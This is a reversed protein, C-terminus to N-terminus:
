LNRTIIVKVYFKSSGERVQTLKEVRGYSLSFSSSCTVVYLFSVKEQFLITLFYILCICAM